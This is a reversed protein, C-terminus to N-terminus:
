NLRLAHISHNHIHKKDNGEFFAIITEHFRTVTRWLANAYHMSCVWCWCKLMDLLTLAHTELGILIKNFSNESTKEVCFNLDLRSFIAWLNFKSTCKNIKSQRAFKRACCKGKLSVQDELMICICVIGHGFSNCKGFEIGYYMQYLFDLFLM